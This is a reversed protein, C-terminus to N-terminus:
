ILFNLKGENFCVKAGGVIATVHSFPTFVYVPYEFDTPFDRFENHFYFYGVVELTPLCSRCRWVLAIRSDYIIGPDCIIPKGYHKSATEEMKCKDLQWEPVKIIDGRVSTIKVLKEM